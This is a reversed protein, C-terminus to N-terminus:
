YQDDDRVNYLGENAEAISYKVCRGEVRELRSRDRGSMEGGNRMAKKKLAKAEKAFRNSRGKEVYM